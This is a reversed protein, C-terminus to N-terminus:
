KEWQTTDWIKVEGRGRYGGAFALRKGDPSFAVGRRLGYTRSRASNRAPTATGSRSPTDYSATALYKGDPSFAVGDVREEHGPLTLLEKGTSADWVKATTDWSATALRKGDPSFVAFQVIHRARPPDHLEARQDRGLSERNQGLERHGAAQRRPQLLRLDCPGSPYPVRVQRGSDTDRVEVLGGERSWALRQGDPSLTANGSIAAFSALEKGATSM